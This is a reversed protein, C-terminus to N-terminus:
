HGLILEMEERPMWEVSLEHGANRLATLLELMETQLRILAPRSTRLRRRRNLSRVLGSCDTFLNVCQPPLGVVHRLAEVLAACEAEMSTRFRVDTRRAIVRLGDAERVAVSWYVGAKGCTVGGDAYISLAVPGVARQELRM